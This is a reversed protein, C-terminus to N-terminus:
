RGVGFHHTCVYSKYRAYELQLSKKTCNLVPPSIKAHGEYIDEQSNGYFEFAVIIYNQSYAICNTNVEPISMLDPALLGEVPAICSMDFAVRM